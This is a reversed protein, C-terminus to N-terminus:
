KTVIGTEQGCKQTCKLYQKDDKVIQNNKKSKNRCKRSLVRYCYKNSKNKSSMCEKVKKENEKTKMDNACNDAIKKYENILKSFDVKKCNDEKCKKYLGQLERFEDMKKSLNKKVSM